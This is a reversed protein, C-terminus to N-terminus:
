LTPVVRMVLDISKSANTVKHPMRNQTFHNCEQAKSSFHEKCVTMAQASFVFITRSMGLIEDSVIISLMKSLKCYTADDLKKINEFKKFKVLPALIM